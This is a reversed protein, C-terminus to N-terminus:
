YKPQRCLNPRDSIQLKLDNSPSSEVRSAFVPTITWLIQAPRVVAEASPVYSHEVKVLEDGIATGRQRGVLRVLTYALDDSALDRVRGLHELPQAFWLPGLDLLEVM